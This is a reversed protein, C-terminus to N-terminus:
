QGKTLTPDEAIAAPSGAPHGVYPIDLSRRYMESILWKHQLMTEANLWGREINSTSTFLHYAPRNFFNEFNRPPITKGNPTNTVGCELYKTEKNEVCGHSKYKLMWVGEEWTKQEYPDWPSWYLEGNRHATLTEAGHLCFMRIGSPMAQVSKGFDDEPYRSAWDLPTKLHELRAWPIHCPQGNTTKEPAGEEHCCVLEVSNVFDGPHCKRKLLRKTNIWWTESFSNGRRGAHWNSSFQKGCKTLHTPGVDGYSVIHNTELHELIPEIPKMIMFDCDMYLGGNHYIVAARVFDSKAQHYPLRWYEDPLDPVYERINSDNVLVLKMNPNHHVWTRINLEVIPSPGKSYNYYAFMTDWMPNVRAAGVSASPALVLLGAVVGVATFALSKM